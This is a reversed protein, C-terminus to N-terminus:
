KVIMLKKVSSFKGSIFRYFYVGSSLNSGDLTVTYFGSEHPKDNLLTRVERGTIDFVKLTVNSTYPVEYDIKTAPNFPNPYNQYLAFKKPNSIEVVSNLSIYQYNGNYDVQKLRYEYKGSTLNKDTFLYDSQHNSIGKGNVFGISSWILLNNNDTKRREIEFGSNNIESSTTWKLVVDRKQILSIFSIMNVPTVGQNGVIHSSFNSIYNSITNTIVYIGNSPNSLTAPILDYSSIGNNWAGIEGGGDLTFESGWENQNFQFQLVSYGSGKLEKSIDWQHTVAKEPNVPIHDFTNKVRVGFTNSYSNTSLSIYVPNYNNFGVPFTITSDNNDVHMKLRGVGSTIFYKSSSFGNVNGGSNVIFDFNRITINGNIFKVQENVSTVGGITLGDPNDLILDFFPIYGSTVQTSTGNFVVQGSNTINGSNYFNGTLKLEGEVINLAGGPEVSVDGNVTVYNNEIRVSCFNGIKLNQTQSQAYQNFLLISFLLALLFQFILIEIKNLYIM